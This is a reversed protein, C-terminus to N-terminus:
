CRHLSCSFHVGRDEAMLTPALLLLLGAKKVLTHSLLLISGLGRNDFHPVLFSDGYETVITPTCLLHTLWGCDDLHHSLFVTGLRQLWPPTYPFLRGVETILNQVLLSGGAVTM